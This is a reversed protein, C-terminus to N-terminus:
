SNRKIWTIIVSVIYEQEQVSLIRGSPIQHWKYLCGRCCCGTAHQAMFVPHGHMPTQKGDNPIIAPALRKAIFDSAHKQITVLGKDHIYIKDKVTLHFKSRFTSKALKNFLAAHNYQTILAEPHKEESSIFESDQFLDLQKNKSNSRM